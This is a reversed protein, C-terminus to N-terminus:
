RVKSEAQAAAQGQCAKTAILKPRPSWSVSSPVCRNKFWIQTQREDMALLRAIDRRRASTPSNDSAFFEELKALQEPTVRSRKRRQKVDSTLSSCSIAKRIVPNDRNELINSSPSAADSQTPSLASQPPSLASSQPSSAASEPKEQLSGMSYSSLENIALPPLAARPSATQMNADNAGARLNLLRSPVFLPIFSTGQM